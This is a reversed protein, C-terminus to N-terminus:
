RNGVAGHKERILEEHIEAHCNMCVLICKEVEAVLKDWAKCLEKSSFGFAKESPDLHHFSLAGLCKDYGCMECKGGKLEVLREKKRKRSSITSCSACYRSTNSLEREYRYAKGCRQCIRDRTLKKACSNCNLAERSIPKGCGVCAHVKKTRKPFKKNNYTASCSRSCFKKQDKGQLEKGCNLCNM